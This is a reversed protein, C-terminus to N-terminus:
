TALGVALFLCIYAGAMWRLGSESEPRDRAVCWARAAMLLAGLVLMSIPIPQM